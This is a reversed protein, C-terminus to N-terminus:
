PSLSAPELQSLGLFGIFPRGLERSICPKIKVWRGGVIGSHVRYDITTANKVYLEYRWGQDYNYIFSKGLFGSLDNREFRM